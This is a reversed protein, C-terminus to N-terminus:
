GPPPALDRSRCGARWRVRTVSHLLQRTQADYNAPLTAGPVRLHPACQPDLYSRDVSDRFPLRSPSLAPRATPISTATTVAGTPTDPATNRSGTCSLTKVTGLRATVGM